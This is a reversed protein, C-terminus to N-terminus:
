MRDSEEALGDVHRGTFEVLACEFHGALVTSRDDTRGAGIEVLSVRPDQDGGSQVAAFPNGLRHRLVGPEEDREGGRAEARNM